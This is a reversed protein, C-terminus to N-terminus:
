RAESAVERARQETRIPREELRGFRQAVVDVQEARAEPEPKLRDRWRRLVKCRGSARPTGKKKMRRRRAPLMEFRWGEHGVEM